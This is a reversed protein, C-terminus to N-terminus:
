VSNDPGIKAWYLKRNGDRKSSILKNDELEKLGKQATTVSKWGISMTIEDSTAANEESTRNNQLLFELVKEATETIEFKGEQDEGASQKRSLKQPLLYSSENQSSMVVEIGSGANEIVLYVRTLLEDFYDKIKVAHAIYSAAVKPNPEEKIRIALEM